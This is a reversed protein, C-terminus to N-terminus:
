DVHIMQKNCKECYVKPVIDLDDDFVVSIEQMSDGSLEVMDETKIWIWLERNCNPCRHCTDSM